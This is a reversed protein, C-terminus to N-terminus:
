STRPEARGQLRRLSGVLENALISVYPEQVMSKHDGPVHHVVLPGGHVTNWGLSGVRDPDADETAFVELPADNPRCAFRQAIKRAGRWDWDRMQMPRVHLRVLLARLERRVVDDALRLADRLGRDRQRSGRLGM